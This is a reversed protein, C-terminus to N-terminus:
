ILVYEIFCKSLFTLVDDVASPLNPKAGDKLCYNSKFAKVFSNEIEVIFQNHNIFKEAERHIMDPDKVMTSYKKINQKRQFEIQTKRSDFFGKWKDGSWNKERSLEFTFIKEPINSMTYKLLITSCIPADKLNTGGKKFVANTVEDGKWIGSIQYGTGYKMTGMGCKEDNKWEGEYITGDEYIYLGYGSKKGKKWNGYYKEIYVKKRKKETHVM